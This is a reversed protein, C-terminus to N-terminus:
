AASAVKGVPSVLTASGRIHESIFEKTNIQHTNLFETTRKGKELIM